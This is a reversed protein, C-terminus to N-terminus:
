SVCIGQKTVTKKICLSEPLFWMFSLIYLMKNIIFPWMTLFCLTSQEKPFLLCFCRKITSCTKNNNNEKTKIQKKRETKIRKKMIKQTVRGSSNIWGVSHGTIWLLRGTVVEPTLILPINGSFLAWRDRKCKMLNHTSTIPLNRQYLVLLNMRGRVVRFYSPGIRFKRWKIFTLMVKLKTNFIVHFVTTKIWTNEPSSGAIPM